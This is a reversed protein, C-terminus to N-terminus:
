IQLFQQLCNGAILAWEVHAESSWFSAWLEFDMCDKSIQINVISKFNFRGLLYLVNKLHELSFWSVSPLFGLAFLWAYCSSLLAGSLTGFQIKDRRFGIGGTVKLAAIVDRRAKAPIVIMPMMVTDGTVVLPEVHSFAKLDVQKEGLSQPPM